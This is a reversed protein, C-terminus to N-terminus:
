GIGMVSPDEPLQEGGTSGPVRSQVDWPGDAAVASIASDATSFSVNSTAMSSTPRRLLRENEIADEAM